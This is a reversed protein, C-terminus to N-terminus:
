PQQAAYRAAVEVATLAQDYIAVEDLAGTFYRSSGDKAGFYVSAPSSLLNGSVSKTNELVGNVYIKSYTGDYTGVVHYWQGQTITTTSWLYANNQNATSIAFEFHSNDSNHQLQYHPGWSLTQNKYLINAWGGGASPPVSWKVWAEVTLQEGALNLSDSNSISAYDAGGLALASGSIGTTWTIASGHPAGNNIGQADYFTTGANEDLHWESILAGTGTAPASVPRTAQYYDRIETTTLAQDYLYAEDIIGHFFKQAGADSGLSATRGTTKLMGTVAASNNLAGNIYLKLQNGDYTLALHYWTNRQPRNDQQWRLSHKEGDATTVHVKWGRWIDLGLGYGDWDGKQLIKATKFDETSVWAMLTLEDTIDLNSADPAEAYEDVGNFHLASGLAGTIWSANHIAADNGDVNDHALVGSNEDLPWYSIPTSGSPKQAHYQAAIESATLVDDRITITDVLGNFDRYQGSNTGLYIDSSNGPLLEGTLARTSELQGNVYMRLLSGDYTGVVYYWEGTQNETTSYLFSRTNETEVFFEFHNNNMSHQLGWEHDRNRNIINAWHDAAAPDGYWKIWASLTLEQGTIDFQPSHPVQVYDGAGDFNLASGSIGNNWTTDGHLTGAHQHSLDYTTSGGNENCNWQLILAAAPAAEADALHLKAGGSEWTYEYRSTRRLYAGFGPTQPGVLQGTAPPISETCGPQTRCIAVARQALEQETERSQATANEGVNNLALASAGFLTTFLSLVILLELLTFGLEATRSHRM